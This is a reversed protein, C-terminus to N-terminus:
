GGKSCKVTRCFHTLPFWFHPLPLSTALGDGLAPGDRKGHPRFTPHKLVQPTLSQRIAQPLNKAQPRVRMRANM